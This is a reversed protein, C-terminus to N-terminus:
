SNALSTAEKQELISHMNPAIITDSRRMRVNLYAPM